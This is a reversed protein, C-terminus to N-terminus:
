VLTFRALCDCRGDYDLKETEMEVKCEVGIQQAIGEFFSILVPWSLYGDINLNKAIRLYRSARFIRM